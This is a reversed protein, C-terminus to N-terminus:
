RFRPESTDFQTILGGTTAAYGHKFAYFTEPHLLLSVSRCCGAIRRFGCVLVRMQAVDMMPVCMPAVCM